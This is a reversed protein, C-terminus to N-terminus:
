WFLLIFIHPLVKTTKLQKLQYLQQKSNIRFMDCVLLTSFLQLVCIKTIVYVKAILYLGFVDLENQQVSAMLHSM